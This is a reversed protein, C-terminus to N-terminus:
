LHHRRRRGCTRRSLSLDDGSREVVERLAASIQRAVVPLDYRARVTERGARALARRRDPDDLLRAIADALAEPAAPPVLLGDVAM